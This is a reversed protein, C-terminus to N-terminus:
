IVTSYGYDILFKTFFDNKNIIECNATAIAVVYITYLNGM